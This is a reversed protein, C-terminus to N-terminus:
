ADLNDEPFSLVEHGSWPREGGPLLLREFFPSNRTLLNQSLYIPEHCDNVFITIIRDAKFSRRTSSDADTGEMM